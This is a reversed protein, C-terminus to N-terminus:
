INLSSFEVVAKHLQKPYNEDEINNIKHRNWTEMFQHHISEGAQESWYGLGNNHDIYRLSQEVHEKLVHIKLTESVDNIVELDDIAKRLIKMDKELSPGVKRASFCCEVVKNMAEFATIFPIIKFIGVDKYIEFDRLEQANKLMKRCANGEFTRGHYNKAIVNLKKPWILAREEGVIPILGDWFLHNVFGQLIHLEPIICKELVTVEDDETLLPPNITSRCEPAKKKNKGLRCYKEYDARLDGYTKLKPIIQEENQDSSPDNQSENSSHAASDTQSKNTGRLDRLTVFCYPCPYMSTATQQGNITLLIKFDAVFKFPIDNIKTLRFLLDLNDHTEKIKPVICIMILRKVSTLKAKKGVSGGDSYRSRGGKEAHDSLNEAEIDVESVFNEPLVTMSIKFFDQGGDMMVKITINGELKRHDIVSDLLEQASAYVIPRSEKVGKDNCDFNDSGIKYIDELLKSQQSLHAIIGKPVSKKGVNARVFNTIKKMETLSLNMNNRLNDFKEESIKVDPKKLPSVLVRLQSGKTSLSLDVNQIRVRDTDPCNIKKKLIGSVIQEQNKDPLEQIMSELNKAPNCKHKIGRGIEQRCSVCVLTSNKLREIVKKPLSSINSNGRRGNPTNIVTNFTRQVGRGIPMKGHGKHRATLCIYCNCTSPNGRTAKPLIIAEYSQPMRPMPRTFIKNNADSLTLSCTRCIGIPFRRDNLNFHINVYERILDGIGDNILFRSAYRTTNYGKFFIKKGCPACVKRRNEDHLTM